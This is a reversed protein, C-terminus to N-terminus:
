RAKLAHQKQRLGFAVSVFVCMNRPTNWIGWWIVPFHCCCQPGWFFCWWHHDDYVVVIQHINQTGKETQRSRIIVYQKAYELLACLDNLLWKKKSVLKSAAPLAICAMWCVCVLGCIYATSQPWMTRYCFFIMWWRASISVLTSVASRAHHM